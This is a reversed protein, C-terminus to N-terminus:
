GTDPMEIVGMMLEFVSNDRQKSKVQLSTSFRRVLGDIDVRKELWQIADM